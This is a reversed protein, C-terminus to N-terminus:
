KPWFFQTRPRIAKPSIVQDLKAWFTYFLQADVVTNGNVLAVLQYRPDRELEDAFKEFLGRPWTAQALVPQDKLAQETSVFVLKTWAPDKVVNAFCIYPHPIVVRPTVQRTDEPPPANPDPKARMAIESGFDRLWTPPIAARYIFWGGGFIVLLGLVLFTGSKLRPSIKM